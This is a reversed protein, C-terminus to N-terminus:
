HMQLITSGLRSLTFSQSLYPCDIIYLYVNKATAPPGSLYTSSFEPSSLKSLMSIECVDNSNLTDLTHRYIEKRSLLRSRSIGTESHEFEGRTQGKLSGWKRWLLSIELLVPLVLLVFPPPVSRQLRLLLKLYRHGM